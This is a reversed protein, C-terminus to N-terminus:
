SVIRISEFYDNYNGYPRVMRILVSADNICKEWIMTEVIFNRLINPHIGDPPYSTYRVINDFDNVFYNYLQNMDTFGGFLLAIFSIINERYEQSPNYFYHTNGFNVTFDLLVGRNNDYEYSSIFGVLRSNIFLPFTDPAKLDDSEVFTGDYFVLNLIEWQLGTTHLANTITIECLPYSPIPLTHMNSTPSCAALVTILLVIFFLSIFKHLKNFADLM